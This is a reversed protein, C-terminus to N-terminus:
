HLEIGQGQKLISAPEVAGPTPQGPILPIMDQCVGPGKSVEPYFDAAPGLHLYNKAFGV